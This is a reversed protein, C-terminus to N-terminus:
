LKHFQQDNFEYLAHYDSLVLFDGVLTAFGNEQPELNYWGVSDLNIKVWAHYGDANKGIVVYVDDASYGAARLLSCLLISFDECDGTKLSVTEKGFQWYEPVGYVVDDHKYKINNGVWNRLAIWDKVNLLSEKLVDDKLAVLSPERPTVFLKVLDENESFSRPVDAGVSFSYADMSDECSARLSVVHLVESYASVQFSYNASDSVELSPIAKIGQSQRDVVAELTVNQATANGVNSVSYHVTCYNQPSDADDVYGDVWLVAKSVVEPEHVQLVDAIPDLILRSDVFFVVVLVLLVVAIAALTKSAMKVESTNGMWVMYVNLNQFRRLFAYPSACGLILQHKCVFFAAVNMIISKSVAVAANALTAFAFGSLEVGGIIVM